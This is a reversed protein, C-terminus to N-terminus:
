RAGMPGQAISPASMMLGRLLAARTDANMGEFVPPNAAAKQYLPSRQRILKDLNRAQGKTISGAIGRATIGAAAPIGAGVVAGAPGGILSGAGAGFGTAVLSGLGGGGGLFNGVFRAINAGHKGRVIEDLLKLEEPSFGRSDKDLVSELRQRLANDANLGSNAKAANREAKTIAKNVASSRMGAAYNGRAVDLTGGARAAPGAVVGAPDAASIFEDLADIARSAAARESADSSGAAKQLTKRLSILNDLSTLVTAGDEVEPASKAQALLAHTKPVTVDNFGEDALSRTLDDLMSKVADSSYDVGLGRAEDFGASGAAKLQQATPPNVKGVRLAKLTGPIASETVRAAAGVPSFTLAAEAMRRAGEPSNPDLRGTAAEGFTKASRGFMGLLGADPDFFTEGTATAKSFPLLGAREIGETPITQGASLTKAIEGRSKQTLRIDGLKAKGTAVTRFEDPTLRESALYADIDAEPANMSVMKTVNRRIKDFDEAM